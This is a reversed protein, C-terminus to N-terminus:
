VSVRVISIITIIITTITILTILWWRGDVIVTKLGKFGWTMGSNNFEPLSMIGLFITM